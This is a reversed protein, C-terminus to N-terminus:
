AFLQSLEQNKQVFTEKITEEAQEEGLFKSLDIASQEKLKSLEEIGKSSLLSAFIDAVFRVAKKYEVLYSGVIISEVDKLTIFGAAVADAIFTNLHKPAHPADIELDQLHALSEKFGGVFDASGVTKKEGLYVFLKGMNKIDAEKREAVSVFGRYVVESLIEPCDLETICLNAEETELSTIYEELITKVKQKAEAASIKPKEIKPAAKAEKKPAAAKAPKAASKSKNSKSVTVFEENGDGLSAFKNVSGSTNKPKPAAAAKTPAAGKTKAQISWGDTSTQTPKKKNPVPLANISRVTAPGTTSSSAHYFNDSSTRIKAPGKPFNSGTSLAPSSKRLITDKKEKEKEKEEDNKKAEDHIEQISKAEYEKRKPVWLDKRLDLLDLVMFRFRAPLIKRKSLRTLRQFYTDTLDKDIAELKSGITTILKCLNEIDDENIETQDEIDEIDEPMLRNICGLTEDASILDKKFLEGIFKTNGISKQKIIFLQEDRDEENLDKLAEIQSQRDAKEKQFEDQCEKVLIEIFAYKVENETIPALSSNLFSCLEAYTKCFKSERVAKEFIIKVVGELIDKNSILELIKKSLSHLKDPTIKNLIGQAKRMTKTQDDIGENTPRQWRNESVVFPTVEAVVVGNTNNCLPRDHNHNSGSSGKLRNGGGGGGGGQRRNGGRDNRDGRTRNANSNSSTRLQNPKGSSQSKALTELFKKLDEPAETNTESKSRIFESSYTRRGNNVAEATEQPTQTATEVPSSM